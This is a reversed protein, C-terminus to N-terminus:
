VRVDNVSTKWRRVPTVPNAEPGNDNSQPIIIGNWCPWCLSRLMLYENMGSRSQHTEGRISGVESASATPETWFPLHLRM